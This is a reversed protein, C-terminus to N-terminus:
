AIPLAHDDYSRGRLAETIFLHRPVEAMAALVREDRIGSKRLREVMALRGRVFADLPSKQM